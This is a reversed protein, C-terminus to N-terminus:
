HGADSTQQSEEGWRAETHEPTALAALVIPEALRRTPPPTSCIALSASPRASLDRPAPEAFGAM